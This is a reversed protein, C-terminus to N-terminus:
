PTQFFQTALALYWNLEPQYAEVPVASKLESRAATSTGLEKGSFRNAIWDMWVRQSSTITPVHTVGPVRIYELQAAPHKKMTEEIATTTVNVNLFQDTEGHIVLLPGGVAQGGNGILSHFKQVHPNQTYDSQFLQVDMMLTLSTASTAGLAKVMEYRQAGNPTLIDTPKFEPFYAAIGGLMGFTLLSRTPEAFDPITTVPSIAVAGLYGEVPEKVQRQACAWASGGGQSHGAVVFRKGLEPFAAQAAQVSYIVDNSHAPSALYEHVIPEGSATKGVGLGAYDTAVVVYGQLVLSFPMLYHHWLNIIHSPACDPSVGSTGHSLAVVQYGDESSRPSYPWLVYASVPVLSGNLTRSQYIFRSLATAPPLTYLSTDSKQEVKLLTGPAAGSYSEPVAYFDDKLVSCKNAWQQQEWQLAQKTIDPLSAELTDQHLALPASTSQTTMTATAAQTSVPRFTPEVTKILRRFPRHVNLPKRWTLYSTAHLTPHHLPSLAAHLGSVCVMMVNAKGLTIMWASSSPVARAVSVIHHAISGGELRTSLAASVM